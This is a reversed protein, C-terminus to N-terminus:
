MGYGNITSMLTSNLSLLKMTHLTELAISHVCPFVNSDHVVKVKCLSVNESARTRCPDGQELSGIM